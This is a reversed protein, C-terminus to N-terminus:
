NQHEAIWTLAACLDLAVGDVLLCPPCVCHNSGGLETTYQINARTLADELITIQDCDSVILKVM